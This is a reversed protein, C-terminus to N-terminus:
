NTISVNRVPTRLAGLDQVMEAITKNLIPHKFEPAIEAMPILVFSRHQMEPHPVVLHKEIIVSDGYFIIDFDIEREHWRERAKRGLEIEQNRLNKLLAEPSLETSLEVVANLFDPQDTVGVPATEYISSTRVIQGFEKLCEMAENMRDFRPEINTGLAIFAQHKGGV